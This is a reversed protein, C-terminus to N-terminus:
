PAAQTAARIPPEDTHENTLHNECLFFGASAPTHYMREDITMTPPPCEPSPHNHTSPARGHARRTTTVSPLSWTDACRRHTTPTRTRPEQILTAPPQAHGNKTQQTRTPHPKMCRPPPWNNGCMRRPPHTTRYKTPQRAPEPNPHSRMPGYKVPTKDTCENSRPKVFPFFRITGCVRGPPHTAGNQKSRAGRHQTCDSSNLAPVKRARFLVWNPATGVGYPYIIFVM